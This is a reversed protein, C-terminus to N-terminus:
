EGFIEKLKEGLAPGRLDRAVVKGTPDILLSAPIGRIEYVQAAVSEWGKLDSLHVWPMQLDKIAQVWDAKDDDFSLGVIDFGKSHYKNYNEVVNPMEGRCPGCWSAWFDVLVWKGQGVYESLKHMKGNVDAEELDIFQKGILANKAEEAAKEQKEMEELQGKVKNYIPHQSYAANDDFIQSYVDDGLTMSIVQLNQLTLFAIPMLNDKNETFVKLYAEGLEKLKQQMATMLAEQQEDTVDKGSADEYSKQIDVILNNLERDQQALRENLASGKTSYTKLDITVPTGDCFFLQVWTADETQVGMLTNMDAKGEFAFKGNKAATESVTKGTLINKLVVKSSKGECTGKVDYNVEQANMSCAAMIFTILTLTLVKKM